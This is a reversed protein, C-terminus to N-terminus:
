AQLVFHIEHIARGIAINEHLRRVDSHHDIWFARKEDASREQIVTVVQLFTSEFDGIWIRHRM